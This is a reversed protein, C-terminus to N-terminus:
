ERAQRRGGARREARVRKEWKDAASAGLHLSSQLEDLAQIADSAADGAQEAAARIARRLAESKSVNWRQAISELTRVTEVDLSYTSKIM